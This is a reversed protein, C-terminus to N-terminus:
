DDDKKWFITCCTKKKKVLSKGKTSIEMELTNLGYSKNSEQEIIDEHEEEAGGFDAQLSKLEAHDLEGTNFRWLIYHFDLTKRSSDLLMM